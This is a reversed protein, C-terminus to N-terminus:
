TSGRQNELLMELYSKRILNKLNLKEAFEMVKKKSPEYEGICEIEIFNGLNEVNDLSITIKGIQYYKRKKRVSGTKHFGLKELIKITNEISYIKATIEERAKTERDVKRGKYTLTNDNRIRLAEDTELFDRCPHNFYIDEEVVEKLLNANLKKIKEEIEEVDEIKAKIEVEM